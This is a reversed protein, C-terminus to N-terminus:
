NKAAPTGLHKKFFAASRSVVDVYTPLQMIHHEGPYIHLEPSGGAKELAAALARGESPKVRTDDSGHLILTAPTHRITRASIEDLGGALVVAAGVQPNQTLLSAALYGGLSYGFVGVPARPHKKKSWAIADAITERWAVFHRQIDTDNTRTTGTREFYHVLHVRFGQAAIAEAIKEMFRGGAPLGSAGHLVIISPVDEAEGDGYTEVTIKKGGSTFSDM